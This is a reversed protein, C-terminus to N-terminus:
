WDTYLNKNYVKDTGKAKVINKILMREFNTRKNYDPETRLVVLRFSDLGYKDYDAQMRKSSVRKKKLDYAWQGIINGSKGKCRQHINRSSGVYVRRTVKNLLIYIAPIRHREQSERVIAAYEEMHKKQWNKVSTLFRAKNKAQWKKTYSLAKAKNKEYYKRSAKRTSEKHKEPNEERWRKYNEKLQEKNKQRYKKNHEAIKKKHNKRYERQYAAIKEKNKEKYEKQQRLIKEKNKEYYEKNYKSNAM